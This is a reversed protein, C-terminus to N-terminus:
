SVPSRGAASPLAPLGQAAVGAMGKGAQGQPVDKEVLFLRAFGQVEELFEQKAFLRRSGLLNAVLYRRHHFTQFAFESGGM